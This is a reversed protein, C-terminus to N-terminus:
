PQQKCKKYVLSRWKASEFLKSANFSLLSGTKEAAWLRPTKTSIEMITQPNEFVPSSALIPKSGKRLQKLESLEESEESEKLEQTPAQVPMGDQGLVVLPEGFLDSEDDTTPVSQTCWFKILQERGSTAIIKYGKSRHKPRFVFSHAAYASSRDVELPDLKKLGRVKWSHVRGNSGAVFLTEGDSSLSIGEISSGINAVRVTARGEKDEDIQALNDRFGLEEDTRLLRWLRIEGVREAVFIAGASPHFAIGVIPSVGYGEYFELADESDQGANKGRKLNWVFLDGSALGAAILEELPDWAISVIRGSIRTMRNIIKRKKIDYVVISSFQSAALFRESPSLDIALIPSSSEILVETDVQRQSLPYLLESRVVMGDRGASYVTNGDASVTISNIEGSHAKHSRFSSKRIMLVDDPNSVSLEAVRADRTSKIIPNLGVAVEIAMAKPPEPVSPSNSPVCAAASCFVALLLFRSVLQKRALALTMLTFEQRIM